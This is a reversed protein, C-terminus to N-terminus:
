EVMAPAIGSEVECYTHVEISFSKSCFKRFMIVTILYTLVSLLPKLLSQPSPKSVTLRVASPQPAAGAAQLRPSITVAAAGYVAGRLEDDGRM